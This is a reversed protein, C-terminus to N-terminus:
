LLLLEDNISKAMQIEISLSQEYEINKSLSENLDNVKQKYLEISTNYKKQAEEAAYAAQDFDNVYKQLTNIGNKRKENSNILLDNQYKKEKIDKKLIEYKESISNHKNIIIELDQNLKIKNKYLEYINSLDKHQNELSFKNEKESKLQKEISSLISKNKIRDEVSTIFNHNLDDLEEMIQEKKLSTSALRVDIDYALKKRDHDMQKLAQTLQNKRKNVLENTESYDEIIKEILNIKSDLIDKSKVLRKHENEKSEIENLYYSSNEDMECKSKKLLFVEGNIDTIEQKMVAYKRRSSSLSKKIMELNSVMQNLKKNLNRKILSAKRRKDILEQIEINDLHM